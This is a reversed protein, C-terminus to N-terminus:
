DEYGPHGKIRPGYGRHHMFDTSYCAPTRMWVLILTFPPSVSQSASQSLSLNASAPRLRLRRDEFPIRFSRRAVTNPCRIRIGKQGNFNPLAENPAPLNEKKVPNVTLEPIINQRCQNPQESKLMARSLVM